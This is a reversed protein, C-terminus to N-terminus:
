KRGYAMAELRAVREEIPPHTSFLKLIGGGTLPNVIFLHSTAPNADMPIKKSAMDLKKLANALHMPNGSIIAGGDDAGYERSRSIAMQVLMAAIPGVIMMVIAAIPSGREESDSRGGFIMAWQAMQALYSIAGAIAAAVTAVLIDRNKIHALEHAMVGELEDRTLIRMIGTTVAVAGHEPNRGTAFANPQEQEIVYVKPMPLGASQALRSIINYLEPADAEMVQQAGYMKLVIKDSFWYSIFNMGFAMILAFTMGTRGGLAGGIFVLLLTLTVMLLMTKLGNMSYRRIVAEV